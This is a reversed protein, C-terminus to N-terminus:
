WGYKECSEILRYRFPSFRVGSITHRCDFFPPPSSQNADVTSAVNNAPYIDTGLRNSGGGANPHELVDLLAGHAMASLVDEFSVGREAMLRINKESNWNAPKM